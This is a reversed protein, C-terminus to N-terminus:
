EIRYVGPLFLKRLDDPENFFTIGSLDDAKRAYTSGVNQSEECMVALDSLLMKRRFVGEHVKYEDIERLQM